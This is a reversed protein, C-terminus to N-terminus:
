QSAPQRSCRATDFRDATVMARGVIPCCSSVSWACSCHTMEAYAKVTPGRGGVGHCYALGSGLEPAEEEQAAAAAVHEAVAAHQEEARVEEREEREHARQRRGEGREDDAPGELADARAEGDRRGLRVDGDVEGAGRRAGPRQAEPGGGAGHAEDDAQDQAAHQRRQQAPAPDEPDRQDQRAQHHRRRVDDQGPRSGGGRRRRRRRRIRGWMLAAGHRHLRLRLRPLLQEAGERGAHDAEVDEADTEADGAQEEQGVGERGGVGGAPGGRGDDRREDEGDRQEGEEGDLLGAGALREEARAEEAARGEVQREDEGDGGVGDALGAGVEEGQLELRVAVRRQAGGQQEEGDAHSRQQGVGDGAPQHGHEARAGHEDEAPRQAYRAHHEEAEDRGRRAVPAEGERSHHQIDHPQAGHVDRGVEDDHRRRGPAVLAGHCADEVHGQLDAAAHEAQGHQRGHCVAYVVAEAVLGAASRTGGLTPSGLPERYPERYPDHYDDLQSLELSRALNESSNSISKALSPFTPSPLRPPAAASAPSSWAPSLSADTRATSLPAPIASRRPEARGFDSWAPLGFGGEDDADSPAPPLPIRPPEPRRGRPLGKSMPFDGEMPLRSFPSSPPRSGPRRPPEAGEGCLYNGEDPPPGYPSRPGPEARDMSAFPQIPRLPRPPPARSRNEAGFRSKFGRPPSAAQGPGYVRGPHAGAAAPPPGGPRRAAEWPQAGSPQRASAASEARDLTTFSPASASAPIGHEPSDPQRVSGESRSEVISPEKTTETSEGARGATELSTEGRSGDASPRPAIGGFDFAAFNGSFGEVHRTRRAAAGRGEDDFQMAFSPRRPQHFTFTDRKALVNRIVPAEWRDGSASPAPSPLSSTAGAAAASDVNRIASAANRRGDPNASSCATAVPSLALNVPSFARESNRDSPPPSPYAATECLEEPNPEDTATDSVGRDTEAEAEAEAAAGTRAEVGFEFRGLPSKSANAAPGSPTGPRSGSTDKGFHVDLPNVWETKRTAPRSPTGPRVGVGGLAAPLALSTTSGGGFNTRLNVESAHQRLGGSGLGKPPALDEMSATMGPNSFVARWGSARRAAITSSNATGPRSSSPASPFQPRSFNQQGFFQGEGLTNQDVRDWKQPQKGQAKQSKKRDGGLKLGFFSVM